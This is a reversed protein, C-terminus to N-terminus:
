SRNALVSLTLLDILPELPSVQEPLYVNLPEGTNLHGEYAELWLRGKMFVEYMTDQANWRLPYFHCISICGGEAGLTHFESSNEPLPQGNKQRLNKPSVITLKPCSNPFDEPLGIRLTYSNNKNTELKVEVKTSQRPSIWTVRNPFYKDLVDREIKLRYIQTPSWATMMKATYILGLTGKVKINVGSRRHNTKQSPM